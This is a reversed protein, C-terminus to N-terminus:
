AAAAIEVFRDIDADSISWDCVLRCLLPADPEGTELPGEFLGYAAGASHLRQHTARPLTLFLMNAQPEATFHCDPVARMGEILRAAKANARKATKLWLDDTCYALMQASLYRHKSFLHGARKRRLELEWATDPEFFVVAEVGLCGNKSAGFSVADIGLEHSMQAPTCNLAAVANSFRAGDLHVPLGHARAIDCLAHLESLTYLQGRETVQTLALPGRQSAHVDGPPLAAIAAELAAPTVKDGDGALVLRAGGTYFEPAHCEDIYIHALPACFISQWPKALVGLALSNAATGTAVLHVSADPAEFVRRVAEIAEHTLEDEGYPPIHGANARLVADMVEPTAPGTNDSSLRM